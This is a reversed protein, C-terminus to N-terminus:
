GRGAPWLAPPISTLELLLMRGPPHESFCNYENHARVCFHQKDFLRPAETAEAFLLTGLVETIGCSFLWHRARSQSRPEASSVTWNHFFTNCTAETRGQSFSFLANRHATVLHKWQSGPHCFQFRCAHTVNVAEEVAAWAIGCNGAAHSRRGLSHFFCLCLVM